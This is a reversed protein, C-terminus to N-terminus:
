PNNGKAPDLYEVTIFKGDLHVFDKDTTILTMMYCYAPTWCFFFHRSWAVLRENRAFSRSLAELGSNRRTGNTFPRSRTACLRLHGHSLEITLQM